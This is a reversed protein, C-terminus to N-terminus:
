TWTRCDNRELNRGDHFFPQRSAKFEEKQRPETAIEAGPGWFDARRAGFIPGPAESPAGPVQRVDGWRVGSARGLM